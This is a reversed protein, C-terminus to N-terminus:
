KSKLHLTPIGTPPGGGAPAVEIGLTTASNYKAPITEKGDALKSIRVKYLGIQVGTKEKMRIPTMGYPGSTGSAQLVEAGLFKEPDLLITAGELEQGDLSVIVNLGMSGIKSEQWQRIRSAISEATVKGGGADYKPLANKIGPCQDLEAGSIAGDHNTDYLEIAAQGAAAPDIAPPIFREPQNSCGAFFLVFLGIFVSGLFLERNLAKASHWMDRNRM